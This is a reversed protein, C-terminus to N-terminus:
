CIWFIKHLKSLDSKLYALPSVSLCVSMCVHKDCYKVGKTPNFSFSLTYKSATANAHM